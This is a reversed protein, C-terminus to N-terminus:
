SKLNGSPIRIGAWKSKAFWGVGDWSARMVGYLGWQVEPAYKTTKMAPTEIAQKYTKKRNWNASM